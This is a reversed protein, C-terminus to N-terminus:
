GMGGGGRRYCGRVTQKSSLSCKACDGKRTLRTSDNWVFTVQAVGDKPKLTITHSVCDLAEVWCIVSHQRPPLAWLNAATTLLLGSM